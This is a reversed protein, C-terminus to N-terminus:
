SHFHDPNTDRIVWLLTRWAYGEHPFRSLFAHFISNLDYDTSDILLVM